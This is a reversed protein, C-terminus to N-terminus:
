CFYSSVLRIGGRFKNHKYTPLLPGQHATKQSLLANLIVDAIMPDVDCLMREFVQMNVAELAPNFRRGGDQLEESNEYGVERVGSYTRRLSAGEFRTGLGYKICGGNAVHLEWFTPGLGERESSVVLRWVKVKM